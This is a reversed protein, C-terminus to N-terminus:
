NSGLGFAQEADELDKMRRGYGHKEILRLAEELDQDPSGVLKQM